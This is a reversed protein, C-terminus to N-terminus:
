NKVTVCEVDNRKLYGEVEPNTLSTFYRTRMKPATQAQVAPLHVLTCCALELLLPRFIKLQRRSM